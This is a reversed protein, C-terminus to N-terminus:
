ITLPQLLPKLDNANKGDFIEDWKINLLENQFKRLKFNNYDKITKRKQQTKKKSDFANSLVAFQPLYDLNLM